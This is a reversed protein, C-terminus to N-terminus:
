TGKRASVTGGIYAHLGDRLSDPILPERNKTSFVLHILVSALSQSM